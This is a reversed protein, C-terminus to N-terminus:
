KPFAAVLTAKGKVVIETAIAKNTPIPLADRNEKYIPALSFSLAAQTTPLPKTDINIKLAKYTM